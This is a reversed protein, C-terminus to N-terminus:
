FGPSSVLRVGLYGNRNVPNSWNRLAARVDLPNFNWSGGRVARRGDGEADERGDEAEYPYPKNLSSTWEWVNGAMDAVGYPSDGQPSYNGVATTDGESWGLNCLKPTPKQNGWPYIRGDAGRAAKEWQAESPLQVGAWQCFAVADRWSVHVVPHQEKGRPIQGKKWHKPARHGTTDVFHKYQANTVPYRAIQYDPLYVTHQGDGEGMLFEGAPIHIWDFDIPSPPLPNAPPRRRQTATPPAKSPADPQLATGLLTALLRQCATTLHKCGDEYQMDWLSFLVAERRQGKILLPYLTLGIEQAYSVELNVWRSQKAAPSMLVVMSEAQNIAQEIANQWSHTGVALGEDTWVSLGADTLARYVIQMQRSDKRSYSLFIQHSAQPTAPSLAETPQPAQREPVFWKEADAVLAILRANEQNGTHAAKILPQVKGNREAWGILNFVVETLSGSGVEHDLDVEMQFRLMQRLGFETYADLLAEQLQKFQPGSLKM